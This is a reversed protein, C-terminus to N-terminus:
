IWKSLDYSSRHYKSLGHQKIADRHQPTGYGVHKGFGYRPEAIALKQMLEDRHVKAIISAAAISISLQDGKIIPTQKELPFDRITFADVLVHDPQIPLQSIAQSFGYQAAHGIGHQNIIQLDVEVISYALALDKIAVALEERLKKPILKSDNIPLDTSFHPPFVVAGVVLSGAWAGRGVEDIGAINTLDNNWIATEYTSPATQM